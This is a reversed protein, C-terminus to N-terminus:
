YKGTSLKKMIFAVPIMLAICLFTVILNDGFLITILTATLILTIGTLFLIIIEKM